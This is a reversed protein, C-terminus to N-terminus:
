GVSSTPRDGSFSAFDIGAGIIRTGYEYNLCPCRSLRQLTLGQVSSELAQLNWLKM